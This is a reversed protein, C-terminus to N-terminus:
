RRSKNKGSAIRGDFVLFHEKAKAEYQNRENEEMDCGNTSKVYAAAQLTQIDNNAKDASKARKLSAQSSTLSNATTATAVTNDDGSSAFPRVGGGGSPATIGNLEKGFLRRAWSQVQEYRLQDQQGSRSKVVAEGADILAQDIFDIAAGAAAEPAPWTRTDLKSFATHTYWGKLKPDMKVVTKDEGYPSNENVKQRLKTVSKGIRLAITLELAGVRPRSPKAKSAFVRCPYGQKWVAVVAARLLADGASIYKAVDHWLSMRHTHCDACQEVCLYIDLREAGLPAFPIYAAPAYFSQKMAELAKKQALIQKRYVDMVPEKSTSFDSRGSSSWFALTSQKRPPSKPFVIGGLESEGASSALQVANISVSMRRQTGQSTAHSQFHQTIENKVVDTSDDGKTELAARPDVGKDDTVMDLRTVLGLEAAATRLMSTDVQTEMAPVEEDARRTATKRFQPKRHHIAAHGHKQQRTLMFMCAHYGSNKEKSETNAMCQEVVQIANMGDGDQCELDCGNAILFPIIDPNGVSVASHLATGGTVDQANINIGHELLVEAVKLSGVRAAWHLPTEDNYNTINCYAGGELLMRTADDLDDYALYHLISNGYNSDRFNLVSNTINLKSTMRVVYRAYGMDEYCADLLDVGMEETSMERGTSTLKLM